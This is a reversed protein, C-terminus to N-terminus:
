RWKSIINLKARYSSALEHFICSLVLCHTNCNSDKSLQFNAKSAVVNCPMRPFLMLM